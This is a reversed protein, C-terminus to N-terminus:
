KIARSVESYVFFAVGVPIIGPALTGVAYGAVGGCHFAGVSRMINFFIGDKKDASEFSYALGGLSGIMGGSFQGLQKSYEIYHRAAENKSFHRVSRAGLKGNILQKSCTQVLSRGTLAHIM